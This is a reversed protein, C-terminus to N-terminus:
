AAQAQYAKTWYPVVGNSGEPFEAIIPIDGNYHNGAREMCAKLILAFEDAIEDDVEYVLEDHVSNVLGARQWWGRQDIEVQILGMAAKLMTASGSQPPVNPAESYPNADPPFFRKRGCPAEVWTVPAQLMADWIRRPNPQVNGEEDKHQPFAYGSVREQYEHIKEHVRFFRDFLESIEPFTPPQVRGALIEDKLALIMRRRFKAKGMRYALALVMTKFRHRELKGEETKKDPRYGLCAEAVALYLDDGTRYTNTYVPDGSVLATIRPEVQSYDAIVLKKGPAAAFCQRYRKDQPLNASNPEHAIRGTATTLQHFEVHVRGTDARV